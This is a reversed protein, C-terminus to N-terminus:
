EKPKLHPPLNLGLKKMMRKHRKKLWRNLKPLLKQEGQKLGFIQKFWASRWGEYIADAIQQPPRTTLFPLTRKQEM